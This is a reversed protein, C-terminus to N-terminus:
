RVQLKDLCKYKLFCMARTNKVPSFKLSLRVHGNNQKHHSNKETGCLQVCSNNRIWPKFEGGACATDALPKGMAKLLLEQAATMSLTPKCLLLSLCLTKRTTDDNLAILFVELSSHNNFWTSLFATRYFVLLHTPCHLHFHFATELLGKLYRVSVSTSSSLRSGPTCLWLISWESSFLKLCHSHISGRGNHLSTIRVPSWISDVHCAISLYTSNSATYNGHAGSCLCHTICGQFRVVDVFCSLSEPFGATIVNSLRVFCTWATVNQLSTMNQFSQLTNRYVIHNSTDIFHNM